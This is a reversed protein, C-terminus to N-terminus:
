RKLTDDTLNTLKKVAGFMCWGNTTSAASIRDQGSMMWGARSPAEVSGQISNLHHLVIRTEGRAHANSNVGAASEGVEDNPVPATVVGAFNARRRVIRRLRDEFPQPIQVGSLDDVAGGDGGIRKELALASARRKKGSLSELVQKDDAPLVPFPQIIQERRCFPLKDWGLQSKSQRLPNKVVARDLTIKVSLGHFSEGFFEASETDFRNRDAQQVGVGVRDVLLAHRFSQLAKEDRQGVFNQRVYLFGLGKLFAFNRPCVTFILM